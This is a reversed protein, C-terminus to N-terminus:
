SFTGTINGPQSLKQNLTEAKPIFHWGNPADLIQGTSLLGSSLYKSLYQHGALADITKTITPLKELEDTDDWALKECEDPLTLEHELGALGAVILRKISVGTLTVLHKVSANIKGSMNAEIFVLGGNVIKLLVEPKGSVIVAPTQYSDGLTLENNDTTSIFKISAPMRRYDSVQEWYKKAEIIWNQLPPELLKGVQIAFLPHRLLREIRPKESQNNFDLHVV